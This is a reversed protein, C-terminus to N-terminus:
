PRAGLKALLADCKAVDDQSAWSHCYARLALVAERVEEALGDAPLALAAKLECSTAHGAHIGEGSGGCIPCHAEEAWECLELTERLVANALSADALKRRLDDRDAAAERLNQAADQAAFKWSEREKESAMFEAETYVVPDSADDPLDSGCWKCYKKSM